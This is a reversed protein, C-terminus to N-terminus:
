IYRDSLISWNIQETHRSQVKSGLSTQGLCKTHQNIKISDQDYKFTLTM